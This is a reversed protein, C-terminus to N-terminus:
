GGGRFRHVRYAADVAAGGAEVAAGLVDGATVHLLLDLRELRGRRLVRRERGDDADLGGSDGGVQAREGGYLQPHIGADGVVTVAVAGGGAVLGDELGAGGDEDVVV